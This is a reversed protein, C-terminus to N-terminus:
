ALSFNILGDTSLNFTVSQATPNIEADFQVVCILKSTADSGTNRFVVMYLVDTATLPAFIIDDALLKVVGTAESITKGALAVRVYSGGSLENGSIVDTVFEHTNQNITYTDKLLLGSFNDTDWDLEKNAFAAMGNTYMTATAV